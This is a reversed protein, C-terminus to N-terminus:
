AIRIFKNGRGAVVKLQRPPFMEHERLIEEAELETTGNLSMNKQADDLMYDLAADLYKWPPLVLVRTGANGQLVEVPVRSAHRQFSAGAM